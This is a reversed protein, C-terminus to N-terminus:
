QRPPRKKGGWAYSGFFFLTGKKGLWANQLGRLSASLREGSLLGGRAPDWYGSQIYTNTDQPREYHFANEAQKAFDYAQTYTSYFLGKVSGEMWSYLEVNSFKAKLFDEMEKAQEIAKEQNQIERKAIDVRIKSALIQKDLLSVEYGALNAQLIRDQLMRQANAKQGASLGQHNLIEAGFKLGNCAAQTANAVNGPGFVTKGGVGLPAVMAEVNPLAFCFAAVLELAQATTSVIQAKRHMDMEEKEYPSLRLSGDESPKEIMSALEQFDSGTSPISSPDAGILTLYHQLRYIPSKQAYEQAELSKTAEDLALKKVDLLLSQAAKEHKARLLTLAEGDKKEKTSLLANGLAKLENALELAMNLMYQFRYSPMPANLNALVTSLSLNQARAQVLLGPDIPPEFLPLLRQVGDIDQCHRIKFLRDDITTGLAVLTPNNPIAFYLANAYGYINALTPNGAIDTGTIFPTQNSFPFKEELEVMANSFADFKRLLSMYTKPKQERRPVIQGRPGYLHSALVYMQIANPITELTNLRFYYDGYAILIEIYKMVVWKMYAKPRSRAVVHPQFPKDRWENVSDNVTGAKFDQMFIEELTKTSQDQYKKFPPFKWFRSADKSKGSALPNFIYHCVTLADEFQQSKLLRDILTMPAHLGLEWNYLSYPQNLEHFTEPSGEVAGFDANPIGSLTDYLGDLGAPSQLASMIDPAYKHYFEVSKDGRPYIVCQFQAWDSYVVSPSLNSEQFSLQLSNDTQLAQYPRVEANVLGNARDELRYGFSRISSYYRDSTSIGISLKDQLILQAGSFSFAGGAALMAKSSVLPDLSPRAAYIKVEGFQMASGSGSGGIDKPSILMPCFIFTEAAPLPQIDHIIGDSSVVRPTWRGDKYETWSMKIDWAYTPKQQNLTSKSFSPFDPNPNGPNGPSSPLTTPAPVTIKTMQPIFVFLRNSWIIPAMHVGAVKRGKPSGPQEESVYSPIEIQMDEWPYWNKTEFSYWRYYYKFPVTRTRAWIHLKKSNSVPKFPEATEFFLATTILNAVEVISYVYNRLAQSISDKTLENQLLEGELAKFGESKDDRLAPDIWNEPYLYIKRNAEWVRYNKMWDWRPRDLLDADVGSKVELGLQCRQVFTQVSSIAQKIRSTEMLPSMQVDILFFEFLADADSIGQNVFVDQVLLYKIMADRQNERLKDNLPRVTENWFEPDMRSRAAKQMELSGQYLEEYTSDTELTAWKFLLKPEVNTKTSIDILKKIRALVVENKFDEFFHNSKPRSFNIQKLIESVRTTDWLTVASIKESLTKINESLRKLVTEADENENQTATKDKDTAWQFLDILTSKGNKPLSDRLELYSSLRKWQLPNFSNFDCGAFDEPHQAIYEIETTILPLQSLVISCRQLKDFVERTGTQSATPLLASSPIKSLPSRSSKWSISFPSDGKVCNLSFEYLTAASLRVPTASSWRKQGGELPDPTALFKLEQGNLVFESGSPDLENTSTLFFVYGDTSPPLIYGKWVQKGSGDPAVAPKWSLNAFAALASINAESTNVENTNVHLIELLTDILDRDLSYLGALTEVIFTESQEQRLRPLFAKLFALRKQVATKASSDDNLETPGTLDPALLVKPVDTMSFMESITENMLIKPQGTATDIAKAWEYQEKSRLPVTTSEGGTRNETNPDNESAPTEPPPNGDSSTPTYAVLAKAEGIELPTLIGSIVVKASNETGDTTQEESYKLKAALKPPIKLDLNPPASASYLATGETLNLINAVTGADFIMQAKTKLFDASPNSGEEIDKHSSQIDQLGDFLLKCTQLVDKQNPGASFTSEADKSFLFDIQDLNLGSDQMKTWERLFSLLTEPSAFPDGFISFIPVLQRVAISLIRSLLSFRYIQSLNEMSLSDEVDLGGTEKPELVTKLDLTTMNLAAMITLQNSSITERPEPFYTGNADPKFLNMNGPLNRSFFLRKFLSSPDHSPLPAWFTLVQEVSLGTLEVISKIDSLHHITTPTINIPVPSTSASKLVTWPVSKANPSGDVDNEPAARSIGTVAMDAEQFSWGLRNRLRILTQLRDWEELGLPSGDLHVLTVGDINSDGSISPGAANSIWRLPGQYIEERRLVSDKQDIFAYVSTGSSDWLQLTQGPYVEAYPRDDNCIVRSGNTSVKAVVSGAKTVTIDGNTHLYWAGRAEARKQFTFPNSDKDWASLYGEHELQPVPLEPGQNSELVIVNGLSKFNRDAWDKLEATLETKDSDSTPAGGSATESKSPFELNAVLFEALKTYDPTSGDTTKPILGQLFKYSFKLSQLIDLDRGLPLNPNVFFTQVIDVLDIWTVGSRQLFQNKVFMLGSRASDDMSNLADANIYGYCAPVSKLGIKQNYWDDAVEEKQLFSYFIKPRFSEHTLLVYEVLNMGLSEADVQRDLSIKQLRQLEKDNEDTSEVKSDQPLTPHSRFNDLLSVREVKLFDLFTRQADIAQHYPLSFPYVASSIATYARVNLHAPQSLLDQSSEGSVNFADITYQMPTNSSSPSMNTTHVIFSEMVENALDIYPLVVNTNDCSLEIETIDPRRRLLNELATGEISVSGSGSTDTVLKKPDLNNNRLYQLIECLYAAPSGFDSDRWVQCFHRLEGISLRANM